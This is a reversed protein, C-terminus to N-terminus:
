VASAIQLDFVGGRGRGELPPSILVPKQEVAGVNKLDFVGGRGRLELPPSIRVPKQEVAAHNHQLGDM